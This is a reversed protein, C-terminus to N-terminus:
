IEWREGYYDIEFLFQCATSKKTITETFSETGLFAAGVVYSEQEIKQFANLIDQKKGRVTAPSDDGVDELTIAIRLHHLQEDEEDTLNSEDAINVVPFEGDKLPIDRSDYVNALDFTYGNAISIEQMLAKVRNFITEETTM